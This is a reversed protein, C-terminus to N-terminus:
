LALNYFKHVVVLYVLMLVSWEYGSRDAYVSLALAHVREM